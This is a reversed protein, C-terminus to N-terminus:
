DDDSAVPGEGPSGPASGDATADNGATVDQPESGDYATAANQAITVFGGVFLLDLYAVILVATDTVLLKVQGTPSIMLFVVYVPWLVVSLTRLKTFLVRARPNDFSAYRPLVRWLVYLFAAVLLPGAIPILPSEVFAGLVGVFTATFCLTALLGTIRYGVKGLWGLFLMMLPPAVLWTVYRPPFVTAGQSTMEGLGLTMAVYAAAAVASMSLLVLHTRRASTSQKALYLGRLTILGFLVAGAIFWTEYAIM